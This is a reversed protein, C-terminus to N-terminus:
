ESLSHLRADPIVFLNGTMRLHVRLFLGGSLRVIINKGRREIRDITRGPMATEIRSSDQPKTIGARLIHSRIIRAGQSEARLKRCAAEVEPLEPM